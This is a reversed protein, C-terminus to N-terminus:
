RRRAEEEAKMREARAKADPESRPAPRAHPERPAPAAQVKVATAKPAETKVEMAKAAGGAAVARVADAKREGPPKGAAPAVLPVATPTPVPATTAANVKLGAEAPIAPKLHTRRQEAITEDPKTAPQVPQVALPVQAAPPATRVVVGREHAPPTFRADPASGHMSQAVPVLAAVPTVPASVAADKTVLVAAKAVPQSQMFVRTPVAVVAGTVQQNAYVLRSANTVHVTNNVVGTVHSVNTNYVQTITAPALVANSRNIRDFYGRSVQYAPRYVERPALPFWGVAGSSMSVSTQFNKGGLFVVLAPAYVAQARPPGPVWGWTGNIHAWRGYHSVAYGWPAADVWTWGWPGIWAWHGDSYPAWGIAMRYPVWVNGYSPDARWSGSADLDEYGVLESSVYRASASNDTRRDREHAWRDLDDDPLPTFIEHDSLGTGFFRYSQRANIGYSAGEGYVEAAGSRVTVETADGNADVDIRYDGARRLTFALHPTDVEISQNRGLHRVRVKLAGQSLQVQAINDDLNLLAVQTREGLRLAAGGIQLEARSNADAWLRDGTTLPRNVAAQVWYDPQGAPSFSVLGDTYGLRAVRAPPDAHAWGAAALLVFGIALVAFRNGLYPVQM